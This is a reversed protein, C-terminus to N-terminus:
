ARPVPKGKPSVPRSASSKVAKKGAGPPVDRLPPTALAPPSGETTTSPPPSQPNPSATQQRYNRASTLFHAIAFYGKDIALEIPTMGWRDRADLNAGAAVSAQAAQLDNGQIADFLRQTLAAPTDDAADVHAAGFVLAAVLAVCRLGQRPGKGLDVGRRSVDRVM